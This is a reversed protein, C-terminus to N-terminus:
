FIYLLCINSIKTFFGMKMQFLTRKPDMRVSYATLDDHDSVYMNTHCVNMVFRICVKITKNSFVYRIFM